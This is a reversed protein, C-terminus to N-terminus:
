AHFDGQRSHLWDSYPKTLLRANGYAMNITLCTKGIYAESKRVVALALDAKDHGSTLFLPILFQIEGQYCQPVATRYDAQIRRKATNLAGDLLEKMRVGSNRISEPIREFNEKEELIHEWNVYLELSTEYVVQSTHTFYKAREPLPLLNELQRESSKFFGSLFWRPATESNSANNNPKFLAFIMDYKPTFLGTNFCALGESIKIKSPEKIALYRYTHSIYNELVPNTTNSFNHPEPYNWNERIAMSELETLKGMLHSYPLYAFKRMEDPNTYINISM